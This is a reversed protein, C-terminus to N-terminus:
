EWLRPWALLAGAARLSTASTQRMSGAPSVSRHVAQCVGGLGACAPCVWAIKYEYSAVKKETVKKLLRKKERVTGRDCANGSPCDCDEGRHFLWHPFLGHGHLCRGLLCHRLCNSGPVCVLECTMSYETHPKKIEVAVRRCVPIMGRCLMEQDSPKEPPSAEAAPEPAPPALVEPPATFGYSAVAAALGLVAATALLRRAPLSGYRVQSVLLMILIPM